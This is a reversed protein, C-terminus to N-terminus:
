KRNIELKNGNEFASKLKGLLPYIDDKYKFNEPFIKSMKVGCVDQIFIMYKTQSRATVFQKQALFRYIYSYKAVPSHDDMTYESQLYAFLEAGGEKFIQIFKSPFVPENTSVGSEDGKEIKMEESYEKASSTNEALENKKGVGMEERVEMEMDNLESLFITWLISETSVKQASALACELHDEEHNQDESFPYRILDVRFISPEEPNVPVTFPQDNSQKKYEIDLHRYYHDVAFHVKIALERIKEQAEKRKSQIIKMKAQDKRRFAMELRLLNVMETLTMATSLLRENDLDPFTQHIKEIIEM